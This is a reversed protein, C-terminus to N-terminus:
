ESFTLSEQPIGCGDELIKQMTRVTDPDFWSFFLPTPSQRQAKANKRPPKLLMARYAEVFPAMRSLTFHACVEEFIGLGESDLDGFYLFTNESCDLHSEANLDFERFSAHIRKGGGYVLSDITRGLIEGSTQLARRISYFTDKNEIILVTQPTKRTRSYFGFPEVTEYFNLFSPDIKCHHLVTKGASRALFKEDAWIQYSRENCSVRVNLWPLHDILFRSLALIHKRERSYTALHARYYDLRIHSDLTYNIEHLLEENDQSAEVVHFSLPLSPTKGNAKASKVPIIAHTQCLGDIYQYQESYPAPM